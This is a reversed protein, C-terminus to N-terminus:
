KGRIFITVSDTRTNNETTASCRYHGTDTYNFLPITITSTWGFGSSSFVPKSQQNEVTENGQYTRKIWTRQPQTVSDVTCSMTLNQGLELTYIDGNSAAIVELSDGDYLSIRVDFEDTM